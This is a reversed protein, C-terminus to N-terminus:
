QNCEKYLTMDIILAFTMVDGAPTGTSSLEVPQLSLSKTCFSNPLEYEIVHFGVLTLEHETCRIFSSSQQSAQRSGVGVYLYM